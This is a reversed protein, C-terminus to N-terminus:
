CVPLSQFSHGVLILQIFSTLVSKIHVYSITVAGDVAHYYDNNQECTMAHITFITTPIAQQQYDGINRTFNHISQKLHKDFDYYEQPPRAECQFSEPM